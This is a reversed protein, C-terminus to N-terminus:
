ILRFLEFRTFLVDLNWGFSPSFLTLLKLLLDFKSDFCGDNEIEDAWCTHIEEVLKFGEFWFKGMVIKRAIVDPWISIGICWLILSNWSM